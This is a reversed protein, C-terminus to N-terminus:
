LPVSLAETELFGPSSSSSSSTQLDDFRCASHCRLCALCRTTPSLQHLSWPWAVEGGNLDSVPAPLRRWVLLGPPPARVPSNRHRILARYFFRASSAPASTHSHSRPAAPVAPPGSWGSSSSSSSSHKSLPPPSAKRMEPRMHLRSFTDLM